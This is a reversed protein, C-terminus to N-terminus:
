RATAPVGTSTVLPQEAFAMYIYTNAGNTENPSSRMKFGNSLIDVDANSGSTYEADSLNAKLMAREINYSSRKNDFMSWSYASDGGTSTSKMMIFAPKFGTYVFPGNANNNGTYSGGIKSYGNISAFCYAIYTGSSANVSISTGVSFVSSTPATSNFAVALDSEAADTNVNIHKVWNTLGDSGVRWDNADDRRKIIVMSPATSLGHKITGNSGTGTFSVISFGSVDSASGTSDISGIGTASADNTFSTGAKWNWSVFTRGGSNIDAETTGVTYGDSDFSTLQGSDTNEAGSGDSELRKNVGRVVDYLCNNRGSGNRSKIWVWDPQMNESGDFTISQGTNLGNYLQTQFYLEPNDVTTYAM